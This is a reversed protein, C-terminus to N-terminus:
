CVLRSSISHLYQTKPTALYIPLNLYGKIRHFFSEIALRAKYRDAIQEANINMGNTVVRITHGEHDCFTVVRYSILLHFLEKFIEYPVDDLEKSFKYYNVMFFGISALIETGDRYGDWKVVAAAIFFNLFNEVKFTRAVDIYNHKEVITM